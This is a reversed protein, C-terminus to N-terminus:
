VVAEPKNKKNKMLSTKNVKFILLLQSAVLTSSYIGFIIGITLALAFSHLTVGGFILMSLVILETSGHTIITRSITSTIANNIIMSLPKNRMIPKRINERIRDFIIVSENVSYGLVALVGALTNLSFDWQFFSFIGLIIIVDHMNAIIASIAFKLEFRISLYIIIGICVFFLALIGKTFLEKGVQPGIFEVKNLNVNIDNIKIINLIKQSLQESSINEKNPLRILVNKSNGLLQVTIDKFHKKELEQRINNVDINKSFQVELVTGGTFEISFNLGKFLMSMIALIFITLSFYISLKGYKTFNIDKKFM